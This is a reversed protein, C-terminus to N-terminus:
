WSGTLHAYCGAATACPTASDGGVVLGNPTAEALMASLARTDPTFYTSRLYAATAADLAQAGSLVSRYNSEFGPPTTSSVSGTVGFMALVLRLTGSQNHMAWNFPLILLQRPDVASLWPKLQVAYLSRYFFDDDYKRAIPSSYVNQCLAAYSPPLRAIMSAAYTQAVLAEDPPGGIKQAIRPYM